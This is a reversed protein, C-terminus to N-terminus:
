TEEGVVQIEPELSLGYARKVRQRVEDMLELVDGATAGGTNVIFNAHRLSIMAGGRKLGKLGLAEILRGAHDGPPNKFVSGASPIGYPQSQRRLIMRRHLERRIEGPDKPPLLLSVEVIAVGHPTRLRRYAFELDGRGRTLMCGCEDVWTVQEVLDGMCGDPTGANMAVAGGLAGPIGVLFEMGGWGRRVALRLLRPLPLGAQAKLQVTGVGERVEWAEMPPGIRIVVGRIGGDRVLLNSGAGIVSIPVGRRNAWRVVQAVELPSVPCVLAEAPGGVRLTTLRSMPAGLLVQGQCIGRLEAWLLDRSSRTMGHAESM